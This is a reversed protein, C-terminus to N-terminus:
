GKDSRPQPPTTPNMTGIELNIIRDSLHWYRDDHTVVLVTKGQEKLNPLIETYFIERFHADQDAAWEDFLYIERDELLSVIMALRKRQGTSLELTSFQGNSFEVKEELEMWRILDNVQAPSVSELGYLRDFLHFDTFICSFLARYDNRSMDTIPVGDVLIQGGDSQYLNAILKLATSKGSGNGGLVFLCEGRQIDLTWPGTTFIANHGADRYSFQIGELAITNFSLFPNPKDGTLAAPYEDKSLRQELEFVHGLGINAKAFLPAASTIAAVPGVLFISAAVIKYITDTYGQFFIPLVFVVVGILAYLFANSFLLLVAWKGGIGVVVRELNDLIHSFRKHLADNKDANLRIEQFGDTYHQLSDLFNSEHAHVEVMAQNMTMRRRWFFYLAFATALTVVIFAIKSLIAIYILCFFLLMLSQSASALLAFTQSLHNTEQALTSFIDGHGIKELTRLDAHLIKDAVRLRLAGLRKQLFGNAEQLSTRNAILYICFAILYLLLTQTGVSEDLASQEAATNILAILIANAMGALVTIFIVSRSPLTGGLRLLSFIHM